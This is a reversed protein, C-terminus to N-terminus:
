DDELTIGKSDIYALLDMGLKSLFYRKVSGQGVVREMEALGHIQLKPFVNFYLFKQDNTMGYYNSVGAVLLDQTFTFVKFLQVKKETNDGEKNLYATSIEVSKLINILQEFDPKKDRELEIQEETSKYKDNLIKNEEKLQKVEDLLDTINPLESGSVWGDLDYEYAISPITEHVALKIDKEDDFFSSMKSLVKERFVKLENPYNTETAEKGFTKVKENMAKENIVVAFVPIENRIAYDYELEVYSLSTAKEISGYRGGLILMFIDSDDIWKQITVMQSDNGATFLEMGAPIHGAKLIAEVDAQREKILDKYTSSVFIQYKKKM